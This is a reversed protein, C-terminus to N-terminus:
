SIAGCAAYTAIEAESEHVNIVLEANRLEELSVPLTTDSRGDQANSLAYAPAPDLQECTGPHIHAPQAAAPPSSLELIVRTKGGETARLTATGDQGSGGQESLEITLESARDFEDGGGCGALSAVALAMAIYIVGRSRM